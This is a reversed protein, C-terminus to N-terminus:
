LSKNRKRSNYIESRAKLSAVDGRCRAIIQQKLTINEPDSKAAIYLPLMENEMADIVAQPARGDGGLAKRVQQRIYRGLPSIKGAIRVATPVDDSQGGEMRGRAVAAIGPVAPIGIGGNQNSQRSFEPYRGNLRRDHKSTMKKMVYGAIYRTHEPALPQCEIIGHQWTDRVRDCSACCDITRGDSYRSRGYACGQYGYVVVHYHPREKADGYEGAAYFRIQSPEIAKRFRKLWNKLDDPILTPARAQISYVLRDDRYTLTLFSNHQHATSELTLRTSWM